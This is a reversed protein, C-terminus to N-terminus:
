VHKSPERKKKKHWHHLVSIHLENEDLGQLFNKVLGSLSHKRISQVHQTDCVFCSLSQKGISQLHWADCVLCLLSQKGILQLRWPNSIM